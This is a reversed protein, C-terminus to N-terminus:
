ESVKGEATPRFYVVTAKGSRQEERHTVVGSEELTRVLPELEDLRLRSRRLLVRRDIGGNHDILEEIRELDQGHRTKTGFGHETLTRINTWLFDALAVGYRVSEVQLTAPVIGNPVDASLQYIMALKLAGTELRSHFGQLAPDVREEEHTRLWEDFAAHADTSIAIHQELKGLRILVDVLEREVVENRRTVLGRWEPKETATFFQVRPLFGGRVDGENIRKQLWDMTSASLMSIAPASIKVTGSKLKREWLDPSDYLETLQEKMGSMYDRGLVALLSGFEGIPIVGAPQEQRDALFQERSFDNALVATPIAQRLLGLGINMSTTKRFYSSPAILVIWLHARIKQGWAETWVRNGAAAALISLGVALHYIPPADTLARAHQVYSTLFGLPPLVAAPIDGIPSVLPAAAV